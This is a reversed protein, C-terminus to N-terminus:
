IHILSLVLVAVLIAVVVVASGAAIMRWSSWPASPRSRPARPVPLIRGGERMQKEASGVAEEHKQERYRAVLEDGDLGLLDAYDRLFARAYTPGPLM